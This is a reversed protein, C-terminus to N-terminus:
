LDLCSKLCTDGSVLSLPTFPHQNHLFAHLNLRKLEFRTTIKSTEQNLIQLSELWYSSLAPPSLIGLIRGVLLFCASNHQGM